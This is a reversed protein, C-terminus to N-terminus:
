QIKFEKVLNIFFKYNELSVDPPVSHDTSVIYRGGERIVRVKEYFEKKIEEKSKSLVRADINGIFALKDGYLKNLEVVNMGAKAELPQLVTFGAEIIKPLLRTVNGDTHLVVNLKPRASSTIKKHAKFVYREYSLPSFFPGNKYAIDDWVWIGDIGFNVLATAMKGLFDGLKEFIYEILKPDKYMYVLIKDVSEGLIHRAYEFPGLLSGFVFFKEQYGKIAKEIEYKFPYKSSTIRIPLEPDLLPEIREKFEEVNSVVGEIPHPTGSRGRWVKMKVGFSDRIIDFRENREILIGEYKPSVDCGFLFIDMGFYDELYVNDPMGEKKWRDVTEPWPFDVYAPRDVREGNLTAYVRERSNM